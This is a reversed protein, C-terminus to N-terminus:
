TAAYPLLRSAYLKMPNLWSPHVVPSTAQIDPPFLEDSYQAVYAIYGLLSPAVGRPVGPDRATHPAALPGDVASSPLTGGATHAEPLSRSHGRALCGDTHGGAPASHPARWSGNVADLSPQPGSSQAVPPTTSPSAVPSFASSGRQRM